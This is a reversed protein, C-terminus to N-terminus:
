LSLHRRCDPGSGGGCEGDRVGSPMWGLRTLPFLIPAGRRVQGPKGHPPLEGKGPTIRRNNERPPAIRETTYELLAKVVSLPTAAVVAVAIASICDPCM